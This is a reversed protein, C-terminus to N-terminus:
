DRTAKLDGIFNGAQWSGRMSKEDRLKVKISMGSSPLTASLQGKEIIANSLPEKIDGNATQYFHGEGMVKNGNTEKVVLVFKGSYQQFSWNGTWQGKLKNAVEADTMAPAAAAGAAPASSDSTCGALLLAATLASLSLQLFKKM